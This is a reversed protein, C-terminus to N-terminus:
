SHKTLYQNGIAAFDRQAYSRRGPVRCECPRRRCRPRGCSAARASQRRPWRCRGAARQRVAIEVHGRDDGRGLDGVHVRDMGAVAQQALVGVEGLDAAGGVDLEDARRRLNRPQHALLFLGALRHLLGLHGNQGAGVAHNGRGLLRLGPGLFTPKGTMRLALAPPPPRPMLITRLASSSGLRKWAAEVSAALAKPLPSSYMSFNMSFGRWMSNWTSASSCPM